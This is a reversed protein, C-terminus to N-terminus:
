LEEPTFAVVDDIKDTDAFLMVLRDIGLANGAADPMDALAELFKEPMPYVPKNLSQRRHQEKEFRDRQEAADTLESFGNCLEIGAIYLEFREALLPDRPNLRALAGHRAPYDYLFVPNPDGLNPEIELAMVEDFSDTTLAKNMSISGYQQFAEAVPLRLWPKALEIPRDRYILKDGRGLHHAVFCVLEECEEMLDLYNGGANYWELMTLEPLHKRGREHHRFCKCIQFIRPFGAALLQKMCLEPSTQLFHDDTVVADIHAEPAPAPIRVPTDVELYDSDIFFRRIAQIIRARLHLNDKIISQRYDTM